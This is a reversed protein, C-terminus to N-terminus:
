PCIHLIMSVGFRPLFASKYMYTKQLFIRFPNSNSVMHLCGKFGTCLLCCAISILPQLLGLTRVTFGVSFGEKNEHSTPRNSICGNEQVQTTGTNAQTNKNPRKLTTHSPAELRMGLGGGTNSRACTTCTTSSHSHPWPAGLFMYVSCLCGEAKKPRKGGGEGMM